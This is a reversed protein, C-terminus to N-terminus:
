GDLPSKRRARDRKGFKAESANV